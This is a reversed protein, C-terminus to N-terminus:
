LNQSVWKYRRRQVIASITSPNSDFRLALDRDLLGTRKLVIIQRVQDDSLKAHARGIKDATGVPKQRSRIGSEYQAITRISILRREEASYVRRARGAQLKRLHEASKATGRLLKVGRTSGARKCINFEPCLTDLLYQERVLLQEVCCFELISFEFSEEGHKNWSSQLHVSRHVGRRLLSVHAKWRLGIKATSGIYRKGNVLNRIQYIGSRRRDELSYQDM